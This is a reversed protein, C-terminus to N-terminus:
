EYIKGKSDMRVVRSGPGPLLLLAALVGAAPLVLALYIGGRPTWGEDIIHRYNYISSWEMLLWMIVAVVTGAVLGRRILLLRIGHEKRVRRPFGRMGARGVDRMHPVLRRVTFSWVILIVLVGVLFIPAPRALETQFGSSREAWLFPNSGFSLAVSLFAAVAVVICLYFGFRQRGSAVLGERLEGAPLTVAMPEPPPAMPVAAQTPISVAGAADLHAGCYRCVIAEAQIEEACVPCKKLAV